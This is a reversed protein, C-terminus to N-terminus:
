QMLEDTLRLIQPAIKEREKKTIYSYTPYALSVGVLGILGVIVGVFFLNWVLCCCMGTGFILTGLIGLILSLVTGKRTVSADLRRLTELKDAEKPAAIYKERIKKVEEQMAASYTYEFIENNNENSM